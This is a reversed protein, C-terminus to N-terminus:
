AGDKFLDVVLSTSYLHHGEQTDLDRKTFIFGRSVMFILDKIVGKLKRVSGIRRCRVDNDPTRKVIGVSYDIDEKVFEDGDWYHYFRYRRFPTQSIIKQMIDHNTLTIHEPFRPDKGKKLYPRDKTNNYDPVGIRMFGGPKLVRFCECIISRIDEVTVHELFDESLVRDVSDDPLPIAKRLDWKVACEMDPPNIDVSIYNEYGPNPHCNVSGGLNLYLPKRAKVDEWKM